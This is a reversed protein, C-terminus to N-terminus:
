FRKESIFCSRSHIRVYGFYYAKKTECYEGTGVHPLMERQLIEKAYRCLSFYNARLCSLILYSRSCSLSRRDLFAEEMGCIEGDGLTMEKAFSILSLLSLLFVKEPCLIGELDMFGGLGRKELSVWLLDEKELITM